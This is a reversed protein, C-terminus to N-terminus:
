RSKKGINYIKPINIIHNLDVSIQNTYISVVLSNPLYM